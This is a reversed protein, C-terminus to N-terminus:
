CSHGRLHVSAAVQWAVVQTTDALLKHLTLLSFNHHRAQGFCGPLKHLWLKCPMTHKSLQHPAAPM